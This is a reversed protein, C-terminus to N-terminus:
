SEVTMGRSPPADLVGRGMSEIVVAESYQIARDLRAIVGTTYRRRVSEGGKIERRTEEIERTMVFM